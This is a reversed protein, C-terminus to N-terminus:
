NMVRRLVIMQLMHVRSIESLCKLVLAPATVFTIQTGSVGYQSKTMYTGSTEVLLSNEGDWPTYDDDQNIKLDFTTTSGDFQSSIDNIVEVHSSSFEPNSYKFKTGFGHFTHLVM